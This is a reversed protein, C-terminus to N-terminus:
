DPATTIFSDKRCFVAFWDELAGRDKRWDRDAHRFDLYGLASGVSIQGMDLPGMDLPGALQTTVNANLHDLTREIKGWQAELWDGYQKNEPRFRKEYVMSVAADMIADGTAELALVDWLKHDPYGGGGVHDNLFRTIVRSDFLASGDPRILTPIKSMPNAATLVPDPAVPTTSVDIQEVADSLGAEIIFMRVKRVFPSAPSSILKM